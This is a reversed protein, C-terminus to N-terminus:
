AQSITEQHPFPGVIKPLNVNLLILICDSVTCLHPLHDPTADQHHESKTAITDGIHTSSYLDKWTSYQEVTLDRMM